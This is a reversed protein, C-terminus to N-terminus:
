SVTRLILHSFRVSPLHCRFPFCFQWFPIYASSRRAVPESCTGCGVGPPTSRQRGARRGGRAWGCRRAGAEARSLSGAGGGWAGAASVERIAQKGPAERGPLGESEEADGSPARRRRGQWRRRLPGAAQTGAAADGCRAREGAGTQPLPAAGASGAALLLPLLLLAPPGPMEGM